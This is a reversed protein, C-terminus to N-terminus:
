AVRWHQQHTQLGFDSNRSKVGRGLAAKKGRGRRERGGLSRPYGLEWNWEGHGRAGQGKVPHRSHRTVGPTPAWPLAQHNEGDAVDADWVLELILCALSQWKALVAATQPPLYPSPFLVCKCSCRGFYCEGRYGSQFWWWVSLCLKHTASLAFCAELQSLYNSNISQSKLVEISYKTKPSNPTKIQM